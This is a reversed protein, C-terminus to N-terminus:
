KYDEAINFGMDQTTEILISRAHQKSMNFEDRL